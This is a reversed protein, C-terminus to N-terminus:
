GCPGQLKIGSDGRAAEQGCSSGLSLLCVLGMDCVAHWIHSLSGVDTDWVFCHCIIDMFNIGSLEWCHLTTVFSQAIWLIQLTRDTDFRLRQQQQGNVYYVWQCKISSPCFIRIHEVSPPNYTIICQIVVTEFHVLHCAISVALVNTHVTFHLSGPVVDGESIVTHGQVTLFPLIVRVWTPSIKGKLSMKVTIFSM